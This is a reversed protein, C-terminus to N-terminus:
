IGNLFYSSADHIALINKLSVIQEISFVQGAEVGSKRNKMVSADLIM